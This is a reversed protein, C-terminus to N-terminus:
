PIVDITIDGFSIPEGGHDRIFEGAEDEGRVPILEKGMPGMVDSGRIFIVSRVPLVEMSYYDTGHIHM